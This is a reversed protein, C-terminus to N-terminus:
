SFRAIRDRVDTRFHDIYGAVFEFPDLKKDEVLPTLDMGVAM